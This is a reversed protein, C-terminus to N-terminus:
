VLSAVVVPRNVPIKPANIPAQIWRDFAVNASFLGQCDVSQCKFTKSLLSESIIESRITLARTGCSPCHTTFSKPNRKKTMM